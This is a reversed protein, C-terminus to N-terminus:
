LRMGLHYGTQHRAHARQAFYWGNGETSSARPLATRGGAPTVPPARISRAGVLGHSRTATAKTAAARAEGLDDWADRARTADSTLPPPGQSVFFISQVPPHASPRDFCVATSPARPAATPPLQPPQDSEAWSEWSDPPEASARSRQSQGAKAPRQAVPRAARCDDGGLQWPAHSLTVADAELTLPPPATSRGHALAATRLRQRTNVLRAAGDGGLAPCGRACLRLLRPHHAISWAVSAVPSATELALAAFADAVPTQAHPPWEWGIGIASLELLALSTAGRARVCAQLAAEDDIELNDALSLVSLEVDCLELASALARVGANSLGCDNLRLERLAVSDGDSARARVDAAARCIARLGDDGIPSHSLDLSHLHDGLLLVLRACGAAEDFRGRAHLSLSRLRPCASGLADAIVALPTTCGDLHLARLWRGHAVLLRHRPDLDGHRLSLEVLRARPGHAGLLRNLMRPPVGSASLVIRLTPPHQPQPPRPPPHTLLLALLASSRSGDLTPLGTLDLELALPADEEPAGRASPRTPAYLSADAVIRAWARCVNRCRWAVLAPMFSLVHSITDAPLQAMSAQTAQEVEISAM